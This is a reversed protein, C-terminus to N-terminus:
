QAVSTDALIEIIEDYQLVGDGDKDAIKLMMDAEEDTLRDTGMSTLVQTVVTASRSPDASLSPCVTRAVSQAHQTRPTRAGRPFQKRTRGARHACRSSTTSLSSAM